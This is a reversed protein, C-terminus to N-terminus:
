PTFTWSSTFSAHSLLINHFLTQFTSKLCHLYIWPHTHMVKKVLYCNDATGDDDSDFLINFIKKKQKSESTFEDKQKCLRHLPSFQTVRATGGWKIEDVICIHFETNYSRFLYLSLVFLLLFCGCDVCVWVVCYMWYASNLVSIM